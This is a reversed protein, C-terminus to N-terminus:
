YKCSISKILKGSKIVMLVQSLDNIIFVRWGNMRMKEHCKEQAESVVGHLSKCEFAIPVGELAFTFDPWGITMTSRKDTRPQCFAIDKMRLLAAIQTQLERENKAKVSTFVEEMTRGVRGLSKRDKKNMARLINDPLLSM